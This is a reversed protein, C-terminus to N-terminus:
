SFQLFSERLIMVQTSVAWIPLGLSAVFGTITFILAFFKYKM